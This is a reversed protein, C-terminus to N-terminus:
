APPSTRRTSGNTGTLGESFAVTNSTGDTISHIGYSVSYWFVGTSGPSTGCTQPTSGNVVLNDVYTTTGVSAYYNNILTTDAQNAQTLAANGAASGANGDSPCLFGAIKTYVATGNVLPSLSTSFPDLMFNCANYITGQEMYSLMLAQASWGSWAICGPNVTNFSAAVGQPFTNNATHYNHMALGIQKINNTCQIRRAAERASQVAPLLLAILVAIIAIVVLLEILTFGRRNRISNM